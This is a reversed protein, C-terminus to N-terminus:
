PGTIQMGKPSDVKSRCATGYDGHGTPKCTDRWHPHRSSGEATDSTGGKSPNSGWQGVRVAPPYLLHCTDAVM